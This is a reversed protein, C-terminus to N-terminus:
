VIEEVSLIQASGSSNSSAALVDNWFVTTPNAGLATITFKNLQNSEDDLEDTKIAPQNTATFISAQLKSYDVVEVRMITTQSFAAFTLNRAVFGGFVYSGGTTISTTELGALNTASLGDWNYTAKVDNDNVQLTRTYVSPGGSWSDVFIGGGVAANLTPTSYLEQDSSLTISYIQVYAGDNGGSRLRAYPTTVTIAAPTNAIKVVAGSGSLSDNQARYGGIILNTTAVNYSGAIRTATFYTTHNVLGLQSGPSTAGNYVGNAITYAVDASESGKLAGQGGPYTIAGITVTPRVNNLLVIDRGNVNGGAYNTDRTNTQAGSSSVAYAQLSLAQVTNGRDPITVTVSFSTTAAFTLTQGSGAGSDLTVISSVAKDTTGILTYTDGAKLETQSGPYGGSFSLTLLTPAADYTVGVTISAGKVDNPTVISARVAGSGTLTVDAWDDYVDGSTSPALTHQTGNIQILPYSSKVRISVALSSTTCSQLVTNNVDQFVKSSVSGSESQTSLDAVLIFGQSKGGGSGIIM